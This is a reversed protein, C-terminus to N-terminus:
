LNVWAANPAGASAPLQFEGKAWARFFDPVSPLLKPHSLLDEPTLWMWEAVEDPNAKPESEADRDVILWELKTGWRTRSQWVLEQASGKLHLEEMLEREIAQEPSEGKEITGGAFCLLNPARVFESRRIVLFQKNEVIIAM